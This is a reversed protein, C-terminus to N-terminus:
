YTGGPNLGPPEPRKARALIWIGAAESRAHPEHGPTVDDKALEALYEVNDRITQADLEELLARFALGKNRWYCGRIEIPSPFLDVLTPRDFGCVFHGHTELVRRRREPDANYAPDAFPVLAFLYKHAADVMNQVALTTHEIHELVETSCVLDATISPPDLVDLTDFHVNTLQWERVARKVFSWNPTTASVIDTLHFRIRPFELALALEALGKGVGVALVSNIDHAVASVAERLHLYRLYRWRREVLLTASTKALCRALFVSSSEIADTM